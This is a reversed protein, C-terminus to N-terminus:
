LRGEPRGSARDRLKIRGRTLGPCGCDVLSSNAPPGEFLSFETPSSSRRLRGMRRRSDWGERRQHRSECRQRGGQRRRARGQRWHDGGQRRCVVRRDWHSGVELLIQELTGTEVDFRMSLDAKEYEWYVLDASFEWERAAEGAQDVTPGGLGPGVPPAPPIPPPTTIQEGPGHVLMVIPKPLDYYHGEFSFGYIRAFGAGPANLQSRLSQNAGLNQVNAASGVNPPAGVNLQLEEIPRGYLKILDPSLISEATSM